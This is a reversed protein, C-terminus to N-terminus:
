LRLQGDELKKRLGADLEVFQDGQIVYVPEDEVKWATDKLEVKRYKFTGTTEQEPRIRILVPM